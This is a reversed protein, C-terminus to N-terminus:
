IKENRIKHITVINVNDETELRLVGSITSFKDISQAYKLM